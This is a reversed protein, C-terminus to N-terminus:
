PPTITTLQQGCKWIVPKCNLNCDCSTIKTKLDFAFKEFCLDLSPSDPGVFDILSNGSPDTIDILIYLYGNAIQFEINLKTDTNVENVIVYNDTPGPIPPIVITYIHCDEVFRLPIGFIVTKIKEACELNKFVVRNKCLELKYSIDASKILVGRMSSTNEFKTLIKFDIDCDPTLTSHLKPCPAQM